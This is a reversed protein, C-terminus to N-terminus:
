GTHPIGAIHHGRIQVISRELFTQNRNSIIRVMIGNLINSRLVAMYSEISVIWSDEMLVMSSLRPPLIFDMLYQIRYAKQIRERFILTQRRCCSGYKDEDTIRIVHKMGATEYLFKVHDMPHNEGHVHSLLEFVIRLNGKDFLHQFTSKDIGFFRIVEIIDDRNLM